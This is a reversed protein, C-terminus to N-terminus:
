HVWPDGRRSGKDEDVLRLKSKKRMRGLRQEIWWREMRLRSERGVRTFRRPELLFVTLAVAALVGTFGAFDKSGLFGLFGFAIEIWLFWRAKVPLVFFLLITAEARLVAFAAVVVLMLTRQGQILQFPVAPEFGLVRGLFDAAVAAVGAGATAFLVLNWFRRRRLLRFVDSAFWYLILLELLIWLSPGGVGIWPYTVLQWVAGKQWVMSTLRLWGIASTFFQLSFTVAVIVLMAVIDRPPPGGLGFSVNRTYSTAMLLLRPQSGLDTIRALNRVDSEAKPETM